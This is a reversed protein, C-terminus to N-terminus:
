KEWTWKLTVKFNAAITGKTVFPVGAEGGANVGFEIACEKPKETMNEIQNVFAACSSEILDGISKFTDQTADMFRDVAGEPRVGGGAPPAIEIKFTVAPDPM